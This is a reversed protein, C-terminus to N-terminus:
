DFLDIAEQLQVDIADNARNWIAKTIDQLLPEIEKTDVGTFDLVYGDTHTWSYFSNSAQDVLTSLKSSVEISKPVLVGREIYEDVKTVEVERETAVEDVRNKAVIEDKKSRAM